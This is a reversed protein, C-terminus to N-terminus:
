DNGPEPNFCAVAHGRSHETLEPQKECLSLVRPCRDAFRCGPKFDQPSPVQGPIAELCKSGTTPLSRLLGLTYPHWSHEIVQRTSGIEAIRGAYMVAVRDAYHAVLNLNHTILLVACGTEACMKCLIEMVQAQVTVDLATTPEDAIILDPKMLFAMAIMVRQLMGGSLQHPFANLVREPDALGTMQLVERCRKLDPDEKQHYQFCELMQRSIKLVPNLAAGPEQFIMTIKQGRLNRLFEPSERLLDKGKYLIEGNLVSASPRPLLGLIAQASVSKGCGSEGVLAFIEGANIEFSVSDTVQIIKNASLFGVSLNRLELISQKNM